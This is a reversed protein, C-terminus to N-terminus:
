SGRVELLGGLLATEIQPACHATADAPPMGTEEAFKSVGEAVNRSEHVFTALLLLEPSIEMPLVLAEDTFRAFIRSEIDDGPGAQEQALVTGEPVSLPARLLKDRNTFLSRAAFLKDIKGSTVPAHALPAIPLVDTRADRGRARQVAVITPVFGKIKRSALHALLRGVQEEYPAGLEPFLAATYSTAHEEVSSQPASLILLDLEKGAAARLRDALPVDDVPWDVRLVGRGELSLHSAMQSLVGLAMEDGRAGGYLFAAASTGEAFPVFPPQSAIIDFREGRAPAFSDGERFEVNTTGNLLANVRSLVLARPNIDTAIVRKVGQALLLACTGAGCGLDLASQCMSEPFSARCLEVTGDGFGMVGADGRSLEDSLIVLQNLLSTVFPSVVSGDERRELLGIALLPDLDAGLTKQAEESTVPDSFLFMRMAYGHPEAIRRLHYARMPARLAPHLGRAASVIPAVRAPTLGLDRFRRALARWSAAPYDLLRTVDPLAM